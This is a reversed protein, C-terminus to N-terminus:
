LIAKGLFHGHVIYVFRIRFLSGQVLQRSCQHSNENMWKYSVQCKRDWFGCEQPLICFLEHIPNKYGKPVIGM